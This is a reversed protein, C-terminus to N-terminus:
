KRTSIQRSCPMSATATFFVTWARDAFASVCSSKSHSRFSITSPPPSAMTHSARTM